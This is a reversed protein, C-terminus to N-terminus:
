QRVVARVIATDGRASLFRIAVTDTPLLRVRLGHAMVHLGGPAMTASDGPAIALTDVPVMRATGASDVTRHISANGAADIEVAVIRLTDAGANALTVYAATMEGVEGPRMWPGSPPAPPEQVVTCAIPALALSALALRRRHM